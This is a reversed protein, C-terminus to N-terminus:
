GNSADNTFTRNTLQNEYERALKQLEIRVGFLVAYGFLVFALVSVSPNRILVIGSRM